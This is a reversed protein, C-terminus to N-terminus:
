RVRGENAVLERRAEVEGRLSADDPYAIEDPEDGDNTPEAAFHEVLGYHEAIAVRDLEGSV